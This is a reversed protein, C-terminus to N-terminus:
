GPAARSSARGAPGRRTLHRPQEGHRPSRGRHRCEGATPASTPISTTPESRLHRRRRRPRAQARVADPEPVRQEGVDEELAVQGPSAAGTCAAQARVVPPWWRRRCPRAAVPQTVQRRVVLPGAGVGVGERRQQPRGVHSFTERTRRSAASSSTRAASRQSVPAGSGPSSTACARSSSRAPRAQSVRSRVSSAHCVSRDAGAVEDVGASVRQPRAGQQDEVVLKRAGRGPRPSWRARLSATSSSRTGVDVAALVGVREGPLGLVVVPGTLRVLSGQDDGVRQGGSLPRSGIGGQAM